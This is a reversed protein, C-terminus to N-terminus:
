TIVSRNSFCFKMIFGNDHNLFEAHEYVKDNLLHLSYYYLGFSDNFKQNAVDIMCNDCMQM